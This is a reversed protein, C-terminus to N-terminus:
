KKGLVKRVKTLADHLPWNGSSGSWGAINELEKEALELAEKTERRNVVAENQGLRYAREIHGAM